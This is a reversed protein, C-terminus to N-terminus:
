DRPCRCERCPSPVSVRERAGRSDRPSVPISSQDASAAWLQARCRSALRTANTTALQMTAGSQVAVSRRGGVLDEGLENGDIVRPPARCGRSRRCCRRGSMGCRLLFSDRSPSCRASAASVSCRARLVWSCRDSARLQCTQVRFSRAEAAALLTKGRAVEQPAPNRNSRFHAQLLHQQRM